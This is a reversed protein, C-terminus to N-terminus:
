QTCLGIIELREGAITCIAKYAVLEDDQKLEIIEYSELEKAASVNRIWNEMNPFPKACEIKFSEAIFHITHATYYEKTARNWETYGPLFAQSFGFLFFGLIIIAMIADIYTM